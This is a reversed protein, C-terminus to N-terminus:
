PPWIPVFHYWQDLHEHILPEFARMIDQTLRQRAQRDRLAARDYPIPPLVHASYAKSTRPLCVPLLVCGSARALEAAAITAHFSRGFLEVTVAASAPPRDVLLAVTAGETLRRIVQLFAFPDEGIVLTEANWRQRSAQRLKTFDQTPEPMSIVQLDVGRRALWPVGFEWNGVHASLLLIGRKQRQAEVFHEWGTQEGLLDDIALGAEYRWLDVLKLAFQQFLTRAIKAARAADNACVPLVNRTVTERRHGALLWYCAALLRGLRTCFEPPLVRVFWLGLRWLESRYLSSPAASRRDLIASRNLQREALTRNENQAPQVRTAQWWTPLLFISILMNAGIGVACVQGLSGMGANTSFALSGFGACATGGCLLLARGVSHYAMSLDGRHRRLALQMFISYDVGTGLVLPVAMLNLVNWSWGALRMVMLLCLGSLALVGLSLLVEAPRKFALGLSLLVLCVMPTLVLWM